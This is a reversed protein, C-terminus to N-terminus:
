AKFLEFIMLAKHKFGAPHRFILRLKTTHYVDNYTMYKAARGDVRVGEEVGMFKLNINVCFPKSGGYAEPVDPVGVVWLRVDESPINIQKFMGGIMEVDHNPEWDIITKICNIDLYDQNLNQGTIETEVDNVLEYFKITGFGYNSNDAKKSYISSLKSTEFEIGHLQYHWGSTTIKTRSLLAGDSDRQAPSVEKLFNIAKAVDTIDSSGDNMIGAGSAIDSLVKSDNQWKQLEEPQIEYYEAPQITM